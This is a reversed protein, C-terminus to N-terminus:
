LPLVPLWVQPHKFMTKVIPQRTKRFYCVHTLVVPATNSCDGVPRFLDRALM